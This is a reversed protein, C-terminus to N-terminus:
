CLIVLSLGMFSILCLFIIVFWYFFPDKDRNANVIFKNRGMTISGKRIADVLIWIIVGTLVSFMIRFGIGM